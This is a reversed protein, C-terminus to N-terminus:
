VSVNVIFAECIEMGRCVRDRRRSYRNDMCRSPRHSRATCRFASVPDRCYSPTARYHRLPTNSEKGLQCYMRCGGGGINHESLVPATSALLNRRHFSCGLGIGVSVVLWFRISAPSSCCVENTKKM